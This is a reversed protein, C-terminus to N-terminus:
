HAQVAGQPTHVTDGGHTSDGHGHDDHDEEHHSEVAGVGFVLLLLAFVIAQILGVFLELGYIGIPAIFPVLFTLILLLVGGAFINGFLRFSFSIIRIFESILELLGVFTMIPSKWPAVFFKGLYGFGQAQFGWIWITVFAILAMTVTMNMDSFTARFFPYVITLKDGQFEIGNVTGLTPSEVTYEGGERLLIPTDDRAELAAAAATVDASSPHESDAAEFDTFHEGLAVVYRDLAEGPTEGEHIDFKFTGAGANVIGVSGADQTDWTLWHYDESVNKGDKQYKGLKEFVEHGYDHTIGISKYFPLLASWNAVLIFIFFTAVMPFFKRGNEKGAIEEVQSVLFDIFGEVFNQLGSPILNMSRTAMVAIVIILIMSLWAGMLTSTIYLPGIKWLKEPPIVIHPEPGSAVLFGVFVVALVAVFIGVVKVL